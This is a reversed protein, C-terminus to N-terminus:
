PSRLTILVIEPPARFRAPLISTGIGATVFAQIGGLDIRGYAYKRGAITSTIRRGIFPINIQGGHTHGALALDTDSRLLYFSDPSHMFAIIDNGAACDAFVTTDRIGTLSDALGILCFQFKESKILSNQNDLIGINANGLLSRIQEEGYWADHNGLVAYVGLPASLKGLNKIGQEIELNEQGTRLTKPVHGNIFDGALLVIDPTLDNLKESLRWAREADVHWGGVHIDAMLGIKLPSGQWTESIIEVHRVSLTKPEVFFGYLLCLVALLSGYKFLRLFITRFTM